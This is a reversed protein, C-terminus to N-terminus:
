EAFTLVYGTNDVIAFEKTDYFTTHLDAALPVASKLSEYLEDFNAVKIFLSISPKTAPTNLMPYEETFNKREQFMLNLGDKEVIAFQLYGDAHPASTLLNFGLKETYFALTDEISEVMLNATLQQYM